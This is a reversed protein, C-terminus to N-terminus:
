WAHNFLITYRIILNYLYYKKIGLKLGLKVLSAVKESEKINKLLPCAIWDKIDEIKFNCNCDLKDLM